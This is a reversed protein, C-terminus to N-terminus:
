DTADQMRKKLEELSTDIDSLDADDSSAAAGGEIQMKRRLDELMTDTSDVELAAIKEELSTDSSNVDIEAIAETEAELQEVRTAMDDFAQFASTDDLGSIVEQIRKQAEARKARAVLLNKKRQADEMKDQLGRLAAKLDEVAAHQKEYQARFQTAYEAERKKRTLAERALDEKGARLAVMARREWEAAKEEQGRIQRELRKEEAIATAVNRKAEVLQKNMDLLIQNLVKEPDEHRRITDNVSSRILRRLRDFLGM